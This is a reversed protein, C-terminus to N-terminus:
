DLRCECLDILSVDFRSIRRFFFLFSGVFYIDYFLLAKSEGRVMMISARANLIGFCPRIIRM